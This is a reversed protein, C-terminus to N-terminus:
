APKAGSDTKAAKILTLLMLLPTKAVIGHPLHPQMHILCGANAQVTDDGLTVEAEGRLIQITGPMPAIHAALEHGPSFGFLIIKVNTDNHITQSLIGKGPVDIEDFLKPILTYMETEMM